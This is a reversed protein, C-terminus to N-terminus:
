AVFLVISPFSCCTDITFVCTATTTCLIVSAMLGIRFQETQRKSRGNRKEERGADVTSSLFPLFFPSPLSISLFSEFAPDTAFLPFRPKNQASMPPLVPWFLANNTSQDPAAVLFLVSLQEVDPHSQMECNWEYDSCLKDCYSKGRSLDGFFLDNGCTLPIPLDPAFIFFPESCINILFFQKLSFYRLARSRLTCYIMHHTTEVGLRVSSHYRSLTAVPSTKKLLSFTFNRKRKFSISPENEPTAENKKKKHSTNRMPAVKFPHCVFFLFSRYSCFQALLFFSFVACSSCRAWCTSPMSQFKRPNGDM